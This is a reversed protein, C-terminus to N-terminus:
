SLEMYNKGIKVLQQTHQHPKGSKLFHLQGIQFFTSLFANPGLLARTHSTVAKMELNSFINVRNISAIHEESVNTRVLTVRRYM